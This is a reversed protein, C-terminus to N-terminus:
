EGVEGPGKGTRDWEQAALGVAQGEQEQAALGMALGEREQAALGM